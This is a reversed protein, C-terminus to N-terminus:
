VPIWPQHARPECVAWLQRTGDLDPVLPSGFPQRLLQELPPAHVGAGCVPCPCMLAGFAHPCSFAHM